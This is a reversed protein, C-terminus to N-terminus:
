NRAELWGNFAALAWRESWREQTPAVSRLAVERDLLDWLPAAPDKIRDVVKRLPGRTMLDVMPLSFGKKSGRALEELYRDSLSEVLARKASAHNKIDLAGAAALFGKDLFPVRLEVSHHMSFCDADPLLTGQLYLESEARLLARRDSNSDEWGEGLVPPAFGCLREVLHPDYVERALSVLEWPAAVGDRLLRRLKSSHPVRGAVRAASRLLSKPSSRNVRRFVAMGRLLRHHKYGALAEDGGLGSLAVKFGSEKVARCVTFTNLGDITPRQMARFYGAISANAAPAEVTEHSHGYHLATRAAALSEDESLSGRVTLTQLRVGQDAAVKAIVASDVGGSLLLAVPVDSRLHLTISERAAAGIDIPAGDAIQGLPTSSSVVSGRAAVQLLEGPALAREREYPSDSRGMAGHHLFEAVAKGSLNEEGWVQLPDLESAAAVLYGNAAMRLFLPKIGMPDRTLYLFDTTLDVIAIAFMGRLMQLCDSGHRRWLEPIVAGDCGSSVSLSHERILDKYNYIEGNFVCVVSRDTSWFPQDGAPTPDQIALRTNGLWFSGQKSVAAGDPGRHRQMANMKEVLASTGSGATDVAAVIGCM